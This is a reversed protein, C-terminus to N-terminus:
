LFELNKSSTSMRYAVIWQQHSKELVVNSHALCQVPKGEPVKTNSLPTPEHRM